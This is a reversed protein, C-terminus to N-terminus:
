SSPEDASQQDTDEKDLPDGEHATDPDDAAEDAQEVDEPGVERIRRDIDDVVQRIDDGGPPTPGTALIGTDPAGEPSDHPGEIGM